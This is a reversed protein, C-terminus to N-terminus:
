ITNFLFLILMNLFHFSCAIIEDGTLINGNSSIRIEFPDYNHIKIFYSSLDQVTNFNKDIDIELYKEDFTVVKAKM